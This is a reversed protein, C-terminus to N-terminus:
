ITTIKLSKEMSKITNSNLTGLNVLLASSISTIESVENIDDAMIPSAGVAIISNAVDNVTVYNTICHILPKKSKINSIFNEM